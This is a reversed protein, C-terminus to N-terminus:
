RKLGCFYCEEEWTTVNIKTMPDHCRCMQESKGIVDHTRLTQIITKALNVQRGIHIDEKIETAILGLIIKELIEEAMIDFYETFM